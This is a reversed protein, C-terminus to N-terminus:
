YYKLYKVSSLLCKLHEIEIDFYPYFVFILVLGKGHSVVAECPSKGQLSKGRM